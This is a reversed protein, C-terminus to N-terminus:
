RNAAVPAIAAAHLGPLVTVFAAQLQLSAGDADKVTGLASCHQAALFDDWRQELDPVPEVLPAEFISRSLIQARSYGTLSSVAASAAIHQGKDDFALVAIQLRDILARIRDRASSGGQLHAGLKRLTLLSRRLQRRVRRDPPTTLAVKRVAQLLAEPEIPKELVEAFGAERARRPVDFHVFGTAAILPIHRTGPHGTLRRLIAFGDLEPVAIETVVVDPLRHEAAAIGSAGDSVGYAVYGADTLLMVYLLRTDDHPEIVLVHPPSDATLDSQRRGLRGRRSGHRRDPTNMMAILSYLTRV